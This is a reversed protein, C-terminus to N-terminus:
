SKDSESSKTKMEKIREQLRKKRRELAKKTIIDMHEKVDVCSVNGRIELLSTQDCDLLSTVESIRRDTMDRSSDDGDCNERWFELQRKEYKLMMVIPIRSLADVFGLTDGPWRRERMEAVAVLEDAFRDQKPRRPMNKFENWTVRLTNEVRRLAEIVIRINPHGRVFRRAFSSHFAESWNNSRISVDFSQNWEEPPYKGLWTRRFYVFLEDLKEGVSKPCSGAAENVIMMFTEEVEWPLVFPLAFMRRVTQNVLPLNAYSAQLGVKKIRKTIAQTYHFWCGKIQVSTGCVNRVAIRPGKEFDGM